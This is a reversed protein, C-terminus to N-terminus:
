TILKIANADNANIITIKELYKFNTLALLNLRLHQVYGQRNTRGNTVNKTFDNTLPSVAGELYYNKKDTFM